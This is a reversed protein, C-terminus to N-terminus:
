NVSSYLLYVAEKLARKKEYAEVLIWFPLIQNIQHCQIVFIFTNKEMACAM